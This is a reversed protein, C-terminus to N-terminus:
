VAYLLVNFYTHFTFEELQTELIVTFFVGVSSYEFSIIYGSSSDYTLLTIRSSRFGFDWLTARGSVLGIYQVARLLLVGPFMLYREYGRGHTVTKVKLRAMVM